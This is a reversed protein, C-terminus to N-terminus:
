FSLFFFLSFFTLGGHKEPLHGARAKDISGVIPGEEEERKGRGKGKGQGARKVARTAERRQMRMADLEDRAMYEYM